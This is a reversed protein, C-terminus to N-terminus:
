VQRCLFNWLLTDLGYSEAKIMRRKNRADSEFGTMLGVVFQRM